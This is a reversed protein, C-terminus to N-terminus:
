PGAMRILLALVWLLSPLFPGNLLNPFTLVLQVGLFFCLWSPTVVPDSIPLYLYESPHYLLIFLSPSFSSLKDQAEWSSSHGCAEYWSICFHLFEYLLCFSGIGEYSTWETKGLFFWHSCYYAVSNLQNLWAVFSLIVLVFSRWRVGIRREASIGTDTFIAEM